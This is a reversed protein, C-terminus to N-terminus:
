FNHALITITHTRFSKPTGTDFVSSLSYLGAMGTDSFHYIRDKIVNKWNLYSPFHGVYYSTHFYNILDYKQLIDCINKVLSTSNLSSTFFSEARYTIHWFQSPTLESLSQHVLILYLHSDICDQWEQTQCHYIRDKIVNKWNLYSPFHGVYYSTHFYNILDYKKLIDCINKVLSTSNLSSTFFSEARYTIHWFQSPALESLSQHVLILYLHSDICDQWEQTQCHYIRDKIVNKWNLYSPFHGVYYSTHFYNILDYKQLIDCINKVLSTSNLSSTFFSEARYTIHWFQSPTLESLSQHVLILYLHSDICDQWEQTQCHYIRDKIVNKWHLYSPFHGVYYSTHFYNILDYKQLIDCINKVLSTSNM